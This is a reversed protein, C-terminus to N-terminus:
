IEACLREYQLRTTEVWPMTVEMSDPFELHYLKSLNSLKKYSAKLFTHADQDGLGVLQPVRPPIIASTQFRLQIM